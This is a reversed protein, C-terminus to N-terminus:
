VDGQAVCRLHENGQLHLLVPQLVRNHREVLQRLALVCLVRTRRQRRRSHETVLPQCCLQGAEADSTAECCEMADVHIRECARQTLQLNVAM